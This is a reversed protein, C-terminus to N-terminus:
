LRMYQLQAQQKKLQEIKNNAEVTAHALIQLNEKNQDVQEKVANTIGIAELTGADSKNENIAKAFNSKFKKWTKEGRTLKEM